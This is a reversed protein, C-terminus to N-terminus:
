TDAVVLECWLLPEPDTRDTGRGLEVVTIGGPANVTVAGGAGTIAALETALMATVFGAGAGKSVPVIGIRKM